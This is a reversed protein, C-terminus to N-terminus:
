LGMGAAKTSGEQRSALWLMPRSDLVRDLWRPTKRFLPFQQQLYVNIGGFFVPIGKAIDPDDTYLPLYMPVLIVDYGQRRMAKVLAADRMCNECYFTGGSGPLIQIVKLDSRRLVM